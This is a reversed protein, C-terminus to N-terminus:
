CSTNNHTRTLIYTDELENTDDDYVNVTISSSFNDNGAEKIGDIGFKYTKTTTIVETTDTSIITGAGSCLNTSDSYTPVDGTKIFEVRKNTPIPTFTHTDSGTGNLSDNVIELTNPDIIEFVYARNPIMSGTSITIASGTTDYELAVLDGIDGFNHNVITIRETNIDIDTTANAVSKATPIIVEITACSTCLTDGQEVLDNEIISSKPVDTPCTTSLNWATSGLPASVKIQMSTPTSTSKVFNLVGRRQTEGFSAIDGQVISINETNGTVGFFAGNWFYEIINNYTSGVMGAYNPPNGTLSDGVYLSDVVSNGDFVIEFRDPIGFAEYNLTVVGIDSGLTVDILFIGENGSFDLEEGCQIATTEGSTTLKHIEKRFSWM